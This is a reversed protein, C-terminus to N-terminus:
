AQVDINHNSIVTKKDEVSKKKNITQPNDVTRQKKQNNFYNNSDGGFFNSFKDNKNEILEHLKGLNENLLNASELNEANIQIKTSNDKVSIDLNIKGLSKPKLTIEVKNLGNAVANKIMKSFKEGWSSEMLNLTEPTAFLKTPRTKNEISHNDKEKKIKNINSNSDISKRSPTNIQNFSQKIPSQNKITENDEDKTVPTILSQKKKSIKKKESVEGPLNLNKKQLNLEEKTSKELKKVHANTEVKLDNKKLDNNLNVHAHLKSNKKAPNYSVNISINVEQQNKETLNTGSLKLNPKLLNENAKNQDSKTFPKITSFKETINKNKSFNTNNHENKNAIGLDKYFIQVLSKALDETKKDNNQFNSASLSIKDQEPQTINIINENNDVKEENNETHVLAFLEAFLMDVEDVTINEKIGVLNSTSNSKSDIAVM